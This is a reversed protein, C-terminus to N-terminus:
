ASFYGELEVFCCLNRRVNMSLDLFLVVSYYLFAAIPLGCFMTIFHHCHHIGRSCTRILPDEMPLSVM